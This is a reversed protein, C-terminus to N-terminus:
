QFISSSVKYGRKPYFTHVLKHGPANLPKRPPVEQQVEGDGQQEDAGAAAAANIFYRHRHELRHKKDLLSKQLPSLMDEKIQLKEPALPFDNFYEHKDEPISFDCDIFYGENDEETLAQNELQTKLHRFTCPPLWHFGGVPLKFFSM